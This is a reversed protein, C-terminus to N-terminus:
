QPRAFDAATFTPNFQVSQVIQNTLPQDDVNIKVGFPLRVGEVVRNDSLITVTSAGDQEVRSGLVVGDDAVVLNNEAGNLKFTIGDGAVGKSIEVRGNYKLDTLDSVKARLNFPFQYQADRLAKAQDPPLNTLGSNAVWQWAETKTAQQVLALQDNLSIEIRVVGAGLDYKQVYTGQAALQGGQFIDLTGRDQYTKLAELASANHAARAKEFIAQPSATSTGTQARPACSTFLAGFLLLGVAFRNM